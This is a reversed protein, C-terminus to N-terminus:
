IPLSTDPPPISKGWKRVNKITVVMEHIMSFNTIGFITMYILIALILDLFSIYEGIQIQLLYCIAFACLATLANKYWEKDGFIHLTLWTAKASMYYLPIWSLGVALASWKTWMFPILALNLIINIILTIWLVAVRKKVQGTGALVQFSIQILFNLVIFPASFALIEWSERFREWFFVISLTESFQFLFFGTWIWIIGFYKWFRSVIEQIKHKENRWSLESIVPFLFGIIPTLIIFPINILSLYTSYFGVDRSWLFFIILQMDINSLLMGINASILTAFAYQFFKKRLIVDKETHAHFFYPIYYKKLLFGIGFLLGIFLGVIWTIMYKQTDGIGFFFLVSVGIATALMRILETWKQLKTDQVSSFFTTAISLINIWVFFLWAIRLLSTVDAKFYYTSLWPALFYILLYISLSTCIQTIFVIRLLYKAKSYKKEVIYKPLFYSLSETLGLDNYISLFAIFSMVGYIMGVEEVLLDRTIMVKIIYGIPGILFAFFYLWFWKNVFKQALSEQSSLM